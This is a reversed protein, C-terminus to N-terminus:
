CIPRHLALSGMRLKGGYLCTRSGGLCNSPLPRLKDVIDSPLNFSLADWNWNNGQLVDAVALNCEMNNIPGAILERPACGRLWRDTWFKISM